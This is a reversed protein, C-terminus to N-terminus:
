SSEGVMYRLADAVQEDTLQTFGGKPPMVGAPSSVGNLAKDLMSEFGTAIRDRWQTRDGVIPAGGVGVQHCIGCFQDYTDQGRQTASAEVTEQAEAEPRVGAVESLIRVTAPDLCDRMCRRNRVDPRPDPTFNKENPLRISPLTDQDLVVDDAVLDNLYLVYATVAYTEDASLSEPRTYPMARRIYDFVTSAYPWFSGITREPREHTLSGKGGALVPYRGVGEGFSGHCEACQAEYLLEGDAVSGSGTPLGLGDPRVDIDWGAIAEPSAPTGFGFHGVGYEREAARAPVAVMTCVVFLLTIAAAEPFRCM